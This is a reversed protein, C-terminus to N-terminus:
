GATLRDIGIARWLRAVLSSASGMQSTLLLVGFGILVVGSVVDIVRAHRRMREWAGGLRGFAAGLILFPVGLGASYATLLVVGQDLTDRGAALTLVSALVPGICPTWGFAFAMGMVPAAYPGLRAPSVHFRRERMLAGPSIAGLLVLGMAIIFVGAVGAFTRRHPGIAAGLSSAAAGLAIFVVSFGLVFLAAAVLVRRRVALESSGLEARGFGSVLSLYGPVLPLVCPSLFSLGGALFAALAGPAEVGTM